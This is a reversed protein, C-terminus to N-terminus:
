PLVRSLGAAQFSLLGGSGLTVAIDLPIKYMPFSTERPLPLDLFRSSLQRIEQGVRPMVAAASRPIEVSM